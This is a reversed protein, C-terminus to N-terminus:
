HAGNPAIWDGRKANEYTYRIAGCHGCWELDTIAVAGPENVPMGFLPCRIDHAEVGHRQAMKPVGAADAGCTCRSQVKYEHLVNHACRAVRRDALEAERAMRRRYRIASTAEIALDIVIRAAERM